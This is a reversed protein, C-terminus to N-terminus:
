ARGSRHAYATAAARSPLGLKALISSVHHAATRESIVLEGAIARNSLGGAVLRLVEEERPTLRTSGAREPPPLLDRTRELDPAAGLGTFVTRASSLCMRAGEEDGLRRCALGLLVATRAEEYPHGAERWADRALRLPVLCADAEDEALLVSGRARAAMAALVPTGREAASRALEGAAERARGHERAALMVEVYPPLLGLRALPDREEALARGLSAAAEAVRGQGTRLLALGPQPSHGARDADLYAREARASSGLLRYLEAQQYRAMGLLKPRPGPGQECAQRAAELAQPWHGSERLVASRHVLCEDHFTVLGPQSDCWRTLEATWERARGLDFVQRCTDIVGCYVIGTVVASVEGALVSVMAQDLLDAGRGTGSLRVMATGRCLLALAALDTDGFREAIAAAREGRAGAEAPDGERLARMAAPVLLYGREVVDLGHRDLLAHARSFWGSAQAQEGRNMLVMALWFACRVAPAVESRDLFARHARALQDACAGDRGTLFASVALVELDAADLPARRDEERLRQFTEGWGRWASTEQDPAHGDTM